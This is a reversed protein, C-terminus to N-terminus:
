DGAHVTLIDSRAGHLLKNATAGLMRREGSHGHSGIVIVDAEIDACCRRIEGARDGVVTHIQDAPINDLNQFDKLQAAAQEVADDELAQFNETYVKLAYGDTVPQVVHILHIRAPNDNTLRLAADLVKRSTESFDVAALVKQYM